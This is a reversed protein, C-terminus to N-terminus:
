KSYPYHFPSKSIHEIIQETREIFTDIERITWNQELYELIQYCTIKATPSWIISYSTM